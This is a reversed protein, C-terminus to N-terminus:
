RLYKSSSNKPTRRMEGKSPSAITADNGTSTLQAQLDVAPVSIPAKPPRGRRKAGAAASANGNGHGTTATAAAAASVVQPMATLAGTSARRGRGRAAPGHASAARPEAAAASSPTTASAAPVSGGALAPLSTAAVGSGDGAMHEEAESESMALLGSLHHGVYAVAHAVNYEDISTPNVGDCEADM